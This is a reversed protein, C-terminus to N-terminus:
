HLHYYCVQTLIPYSLIPDSLTAYPLIINLSLLAMPPSNGGIMSMCMCAAVTICSARLRNLVFAASFQFETAIHRILQVVLPGPQSLADKRFPDQLSRHAGHTGGKDERRPAGCACRIVDVTAHM